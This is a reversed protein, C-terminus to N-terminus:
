IDTHEEYRLLLAVHKFNRLVGNDTIIVQGGKEKVTKLVDAAADPVTHHKGLPPILHLQTTNKPDIYATTHFDKELLLVLGKGEGAARWVNRIGAVAMRTGIGEELKRLWEKHRTKVSQLTSNWASEALPHVADYDYNGKIVGTLQRTHHSIHEFSAVEEAVGAIFLRTDKKLYKSLAADSDKFFDELRIAQMTSKDKEFAKLTSGFSTGISPRDYEYEEVYRKPFDANDVEQLELGSGKLLRIKKKSLALLYYPELFQTYYMVDQLEFSRGLMVKEKTPFPLVYIKFISPSLFIALGQQLRITDIKSTLSDLLSKLRKIEEQPWASNTLLLHAKHIAKSILLSNSTRPNTFRPTALLISVCPHDKEALMLDIDSTNM